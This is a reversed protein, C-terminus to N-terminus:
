AIGGTMIVVPIMALQGPHHRMLDPVHSGAVRRAPGRASVQRLDRHNRYHNHSPANRPNSDVLGRVVPDRRKEALKAAVKLGLGIIQAYLVGILGAVIRIAHDVKKFLQLGQLLPARSKGHLKVAVMRLRRVPDRLRLTLNAGNQRRAVLVDNAARIKLLGLLPQRQDHFVTLRLVALVLLLRLQAAGGAILARVLVILALAVLVIVTGYDLAVWAALLSQQALHSCRGLPM